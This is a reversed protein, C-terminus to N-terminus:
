LTLYAASDADLFLQGHKQHQLILAPCQTSVSGQLAARVAAAERREPVIGFVRRACLLTPITLTLAHKPVSELSSFHGEGVQQMKCAKDLEVVKVVQKDAFDASPPDNFALHGNEGIGLCTVDIPEEILLRAYRATEAAIDMADGDLWHFQTPHAPEVIRLQFWRRFSAPHDNGAEIYEDAEVALDHARFRRFPKPPNVLSKM